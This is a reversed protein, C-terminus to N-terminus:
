SLIEEEGKGGGVGALLLYVMEEEEHEGRRPGQSTGTPQNWLSTEIQNPHVM